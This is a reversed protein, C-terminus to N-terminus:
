SHLVFVLEIHKFNTFVPTRKTSHHLTVITLYTHPVYGSTAGVCVKGTYKSRNQM